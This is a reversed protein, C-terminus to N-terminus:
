NFGLKLKRSTITKSAAHHGMIDVNTHVAHKMSKKTQMALGAVENLTYATFANSEVEEALPHAPVGVRQLAVTQALPMQKTDNTVEIKDIEKFWKMPDWWKNDKEKVTLKDFDIDRNVATFINELAEARDASLTNNSTAKQIRSVYLMYGLHTRRWKDALRQQENVVPTFGSYVPYTRDYNGTGRLTFVDYNRVNYFTNVQSAVFGQASSRRYYSKPRMDISLFMPQMKGEMPPFLKTMRDDKIYDKIYHQSFMWNLPLWASDQTNDDDKCNCRPFIPFDVKDRFVEINDWLKALASGVVPIANLIGEGVKDIAWNALWRILKQLYKPWCMEVMRFYHERNIKELPLDGPVGEDDAFAIEAANFAAYFIPTVLVFILSLSIIKLLSKSM